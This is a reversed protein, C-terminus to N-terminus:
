LPFEIYTVYVDLDGTGLTPNGSNAKLKYLVNKDGGSLNQSVTIASQFYGISTNILPNPNLNGTMTTGFDNIVSFSNAVLTYADGANRKIYVNIPYAITLPNDSNLITIPTTFLQLVQASTITTKLVKTTIDSALAITGSANPFEIVRADNITNPFNLEVSGSGFQKQFLLGSAFVDMTNVANSVNVNGGMVWASLSGNTVNIYAGGSVTNGEAVVEQLTPTGTIDNVTAVDVGNIQMQVTTNAGEETVDQLTATVQGQIFAVIDGIEYNKTALSSEADTGLLKDSLSINTDKPYGSIFGM